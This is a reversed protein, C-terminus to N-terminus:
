MRQWKVRQVVPRAEQDFFELDVVQRCAAQKRCRSPISRRRSGFRRQDKSVGTMPMQLAGNVLCFCQCGHQAPVAIEFLLCRDGPENLLRWATRDDVKGRVTM